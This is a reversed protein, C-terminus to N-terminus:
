ITADSPIELCFQSHLILVNIKHTSSYQMLEITTNILGIQNPFQPWSISLTKTVMENCLDLNYESLVIFIVDVSIQPLGSDEPQWSRLV